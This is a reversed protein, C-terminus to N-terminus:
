GLQVKFNGSNHLNNPYHESCVKETSKLHDTEYKKKIGPGTGFVIKPRNQYL